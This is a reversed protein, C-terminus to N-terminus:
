EPIIRNELGVQAGTKMAVDLVREMLLYSDASQETGICFAEDAEAVHMARADASSYVAVTKVGLRRATRM